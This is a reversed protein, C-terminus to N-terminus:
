EPSKPTVLGDLEDLPVIKEKEDYTETTFGTEYVKVLLIFFALILPGYVLGIIGFVPIGIVVGIITVLPHINGMKKNIVLRLVNDINMVFIGGWLLIGVGAFTNGSSIAIIGAPVFVIPSGIVPLFSLFFCVVGWFIPDALGFIVFGVALLGGQALSIIGQGVVNSYTVNKLESAFHKINKERFPLFKVLGKEMEEYKVLMYYLIFYMIGIVLIISLVSDMASSIFGLVASSAKSLNSEVINKQHFTAAAFKDINKILANLDAPNEQLDLIKQYLMWFLSAFPLVIIVFSAIIIIAASLSRNFKRKDVLYLFLPAFLTYLIIAGLISSVIDKMTYVIFIGLLIIMTLAIFKRQNLTYISM